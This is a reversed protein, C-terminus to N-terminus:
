PLSRPKNAERPKAKATRAKKMRWVTLLPGSVVYMSGITFLTISPQAAIFILVLIAAVLVNFNM